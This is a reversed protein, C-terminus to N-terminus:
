RCRRVLRGLGSGDGRDPHGEDARLGARRLRLYDRPDQTANGVLLLFRPPTSWQGTARVLFDKIAQPTKVGFSFEDYVDEIDVIRVTYGQGERFAKLPALAAQFAAPAIM